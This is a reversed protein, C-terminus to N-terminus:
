DGEKEVNNIDESFIVTEDEICNEESDLQNGVLNTGGNYIITVVASFLNEIATRKNYAFLSEVANDLWDPNQGLCKEILEGFFDKYNSKLVRALENPNTVGLEGKVYGSSIGDEFIEDAIYM